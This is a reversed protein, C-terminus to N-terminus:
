GGRGRRAAEVAAMLASRDKGYHYRLQLESYRSARGIPCADRVAVWARWTTEDDPDWGGAAAREFAPLCGHACDCPAAAAPAPLDPTDADFVVVARVAIWPGHVPHVCLHSPRLEALGAVAAIRQMPLYPPRHAYRIEARAGDIADEIVREVYRDLPDPHTQAPDLAAAFRPWLARSNGVIVALARARGLDPLRHEGAVDNWDSVAFAQILDLGAAAVRAAFRDSIV